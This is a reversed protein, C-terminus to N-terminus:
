LLCLTSSQYLAALSAVLEFSTQTLHHPEIPGVHDEQDHVRVLSLLLPSLVLSSSLLSLSLLLVVLLLMCVDIM